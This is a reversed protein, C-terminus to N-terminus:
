EGDGDVEKEEEEKLGAPEEGTGSEGKVGVKGNESVEAPNGDGGSPGGNIAECWGRAKEKKTDCWVMCLTTMANRAICYLEYRYGKIYNM